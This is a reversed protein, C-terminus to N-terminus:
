LSDLSLKLDEGESFYMVVIKCVIKLRLKISQHVDKYDQKLVLNEGQIQCMEWMM